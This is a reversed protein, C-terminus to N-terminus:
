ASPRLAFAPNGSVPLAMRRARFANQWHEAFVPHIQWVNAFGNVACPICKAV